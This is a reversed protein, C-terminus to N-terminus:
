PSKRPPPASKGKGQKGTIQKFGKKVFVSMRVIKKGKMTYRAIWSFNKIVTKGDPGLMEKTMHYDVRNMRPFVKVRAVKPERKQKGPNYVMKKFKRTFDVVGAPGRYVGALPHGKPGNVRLILGPEVFNKAPGVKAKWVMHSALRSRDILSQVKPNKRKKKLPDKPGKPKPKGSATKFGRTVFVSMKVVKLGKPGMTYRSIWAFNKIVTKGNAGLMAKTM